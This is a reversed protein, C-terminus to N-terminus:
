TAATEYATFFSADRGPLKSEQIDIATLLLFLEEQSSVRKRIARSCDGSL